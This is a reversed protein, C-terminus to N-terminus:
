HIKWQDTILLDNKVVTVAILCHVRIGWVTYCLIIEKSVWLARAQSHGFSNSWANRVTKILHPVDSIFIEEM